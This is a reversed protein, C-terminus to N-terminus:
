NPIAPFFRSHPLTTNIFYAVPNSCVAQQFVLIFRVEMVSILKTLHDKHSSNLKKRVHTLSGQVESSLDAEVLVGSEVERLINLAAFFAQADMYM